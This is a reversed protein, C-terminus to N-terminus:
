AVYGISEDIAEPTITLHTEWLRAM